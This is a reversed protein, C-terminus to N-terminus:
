SLLGKRKILIESILNSNYIRIIHNGYIMIKKYTKVFVEFLM